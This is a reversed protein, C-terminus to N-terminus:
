WQSHTFPNIPTLQVFPENKENGKKRKMRRRKKKKM